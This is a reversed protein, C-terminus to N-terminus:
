IYRMWANLSPNLIHEFFECIEKAQSESKYTYCAKQGITMCDNSHFKVLNRSKM